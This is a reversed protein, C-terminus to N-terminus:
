NLRVFEGAKRLGEAAEEFGLTKRLLIIDHPCHEEIVWEVTMGTKWIPVEGKFPKYPLSIYTDTLSTQGNGILAYAGWHLFSYDLYDSRYNLSWTIKATDLAVSVDSWPSWLTAAGPWLLGLELGFEGICRLLALALDAGASDGSLVIQSPPIHLHHLLYVYLSLADQLTAPFRGGPDSALRNQPTFVHSCGIHALLTQAPFGTDHDRGDGVVYAGGHFHLVVLLDSGWKQKQTTPKKLLSPTWTAGVQGPAILPDNMPGRYLDQRSPAMVVFRDGESGPRLTLGAPRQLVSLQRVLVKSMTISFAQRFTWTEDPRSGPAIGQVIALALSASLEFPAVFLLHLAKQLTNPAM